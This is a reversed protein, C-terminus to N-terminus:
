FGNFPGYNVGKNSFVVQEYTYNSVVHLFESLFNLCKALYSIKILNQPEVWFFSPRMFNSTMRGFIFIKQDLKKYVDEIQYYSLIKLSFHPDYPTMPHDNERTAGM